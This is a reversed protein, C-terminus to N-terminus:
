IIKTPTLTSFQLYRKLTSIKYTVLKFTALKLFVIKLTALNLTALKLTANVDSYNCPNTYSIQLSSVTLSSQINHPHMQFNISHVNKLNEPKKSLFFYM